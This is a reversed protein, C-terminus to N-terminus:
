LAFWEADVLPLLAYWPVTRNPVKKNLWSNFQKEGLRQEKYDIFRAAELLSNRGKLENCAHHAPATNTKNNRGGGCLPNVHEVTVCAINDFPRGCVICQYGWKRVLKLKDKFSQHTMPTCVM